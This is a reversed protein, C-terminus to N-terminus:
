PKSKNQFRIQETVVAFYESKAEHPTYVFLAENDSLTYTGGSGDPITWTMTSDWVLKLKHATWDKEFIRGTQVAASIDTIQDPAKFIRFTEPYPLTDEWVLWTQGAAHWGRMNIQAHSTFSQSIFLVAIFLKPIKKM